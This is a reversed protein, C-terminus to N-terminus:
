PYTGGALGDGPDALLDAGNLQLAEASINWITSTTGPSITLSGYRLGSGGDLACSLFCYTFKGASTTTEAGVLSVLTSGAGQAILGASGQSAAGGIPASFLIAQPSSLSNLDFDNPSHATIANVPGGNGFLVGSPAHGLYGGVWNWPQSYIGLTNASTTDCGWITNGYPTGADGSVAVMAGIMEDLTDCDVRRTLIFPNSGDGLQTVTYIGNALTDAVVLVSKGVIGSSEASGGNLALAGNSNGTITAGVGSSGNDYTNSPLAKYAIRDVPEKWHSDTNASDNAQNVLLLAWVTGSSGEKWLIRAPGNTASDLSATNSAAPTAYEHANDNVTIQCPVIGMVMAEGYEGDAIPEITVVFPVGAATPAIGPMVPNRRVEHVADTVSINPTGSLELVSLASLSGGTTNKVYIRLSPVPPVPASPPARGGGLRERQFRQAAELAANWSAAQFELPSGSTVKTFPDAM